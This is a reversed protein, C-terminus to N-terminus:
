ENNMERWREMNIIKYVTRRNIKFEKSLTIASTGQEFKKRIIMVQDKNLKTTVGYKHRGKKCKDEINDKQTGIFLHNPNVCIKNDCKHLIFMRDPIAGNHIIWSVRHAGQCKGEFKFGGYGNNKHIHGKWVWCDCTKEIKSFFRIM